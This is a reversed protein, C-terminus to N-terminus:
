PLFHIAVSFVTVALGIAAAIGVTRGEIGSQWRENRDIRESQRDLRAILANHQVDFVATTLFTGQQDRLQNRIANMGELRIGLTTEAKEIAKQTAAHERDHAYGHQEHERNHANEWLEIERRLAACDPCPLSM